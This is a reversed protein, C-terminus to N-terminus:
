RNQSLRSHLNQGALGLGSTTGLVVPDGYHVMALAGGTKRVLRLMRLGRHRSLTSGPVATFRSQDRLDVQTRACRAGTTHQKKTNGNSM